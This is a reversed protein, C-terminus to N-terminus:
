VVTRIDIKGIFIFFCVEKGTEFTNRGPKCAPRNASAVMVWLSTLPEFWLIERPRNGRPGGSFPCSILHGYPPSCPVCPWLSPSVPLQLWMGPAAGPDGSMHCCAPTLGHKSTSHVAGNLFQIHLTLSLASDPNIEWCTTQVGHPCVHQKRSRPCRPTGRHWVSCSAGKLCRLPSPLSILCHAM